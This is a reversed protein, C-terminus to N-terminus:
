DSSRSRSRLVRLRAERAVCFSASFQLVTMGLLLLSSPGETIADYCNQGCDSELLDRAIAESDSPIVCVAAPLRIRGSRRTEANRQSPRMLPGAREATRLAARSGGTIAHLVRLSFSRSPREDHVVRPRNGREESHGQRESEGIVVIQCGVSALSNASSSTAYVV